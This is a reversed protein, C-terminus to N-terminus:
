VSAGPHPSAPPSDANHSYVAKVWHGDREMQTKDHGSPAHNKCPADLTKSAARIAKFNPSKM